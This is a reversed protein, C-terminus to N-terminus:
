VCECRLVRVGIIFDSVAVPHPLWFSVSIAIYSTTMHGARSYAEEMHDATADDVLMLLPFDHLVCCHSIGCSACLGCVYMKKM